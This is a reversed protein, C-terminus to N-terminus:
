RLQLAHFKSGLNWREVEGALILSLLERRDIPEQKELQMPCFNM